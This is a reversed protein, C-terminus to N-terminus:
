ADASRATQVHTPDPKVHTVGDEGVSILYGLYAMETAFFASKDLRVQIGHEHLRRLLLALVKKHDEINKTAVAIDDIFATCGM